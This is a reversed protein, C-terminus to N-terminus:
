PATKASKESTNADQNGAADKARVVFFYTTNPTLGGVATTTAGTVTKTPTAYSEGGASSAM